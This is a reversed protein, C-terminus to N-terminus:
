AFHGVTITAMRRAVSWSGRRRGGRLGPHQRYERADHVPSVWHASALITASTGAGSAAGQPTEIEVIGKGMARVIRWGGSYTGLGIALASIIMVWMQPGHWSGAPQSLHAGVHDRWNDDSWRINWPRARGNIFHIGTSSGLGPTCVRREGPLAILWGRPWAAIGAVLPAVIVPLLVKSVIVWGNVSAIGAGVIVAGILGGFPM